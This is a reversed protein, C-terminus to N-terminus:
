MVLLRGRDLLMWDHFHGSLMRWQSSWGALELEELLPAFAPLVDQERGAAHGALRSPRASAPRPPDTGRSALTLRNRRRENVAIATSMNTRLSTVELVPSTQKVPPSAECANNIM